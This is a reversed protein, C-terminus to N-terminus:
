FGLKNIVVIAIMGIILVIGLKLITKLQDKFDNEQRIRDIDNKNHHEM